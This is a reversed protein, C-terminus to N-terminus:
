ERLAEAASQSRRFILAPASPPEAVAVITDPATTGQPVAIALFTQGQENESATGCKGEMGNFACFAM